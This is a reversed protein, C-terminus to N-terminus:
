RGLYSLVAASSIDHPQTTDVTLVDGDWPAFQALRRQVNAWNGAEHWGPIGRKRGELRARHEDPDPCGCVIVKFDAAAARALSRWRQRSALDTAPCDLIASQGLTLQRLALTTLLESGIGLLDDLHRGGFPTM